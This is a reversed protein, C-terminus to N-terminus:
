NASANTGIHRTRMARQENTAQARGVTSESVQVSRNDTVDFLFGELEQLLLAAFKEFQFWHDPFSISLEAGPMRELVVFGQVNRLRISWSQGDGGAAAAIRNRFEGTTAVSAGHPLQGDIVLQM